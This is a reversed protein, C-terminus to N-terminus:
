IERSGIREPEADPTLWNSIEEALQRAQSNKAWASSRLATRTRALRGALSVNRLSSPQALVPKIAETGGDLDNNLLCATAIDIQVGNVQSLPRRPRPLSILGDLASQAAALAEPGKGLDLWAAAACAEARARGFAFEGGIETSLSDAQKGVDNQDSRASALVETVSTSDGLLAYSRSAIYRLRVRPAGRPAIQVGRQIHGLATDPEGRWNALLAALGHVWAQLSTHGALNAYSAASKALAGSEDWRNLDFASSAMLATAQGCIVILDSLLGPRHTKGALELAYSRVRRATTFTDLASRNAARAIEVSEARLWELSEPDPEVALKLRDASAESAATAVADTEAQAPVALIAPRTGKSQATRGAPRVPDSIVRPALGLIIRASDPMALGDAIREFVVLKEVQSLGRMIESIKGQNMGCAIGIQTQSAKTCQHILEFFQGIQRSRLASITEARQWFSDPIEILDFARGPM